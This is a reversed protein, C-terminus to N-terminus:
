EAQSASEPPTAAASIRGDKDESTDLMSLAWRVDSLYRRTRRGVLEVLQEEDFEGESMTAVLASRLQELLAERESISLSEIAEVTLTM